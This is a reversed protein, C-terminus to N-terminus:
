KVTELIFNDNYLGIKFGRSTKEGRQCPTGNSLNGETLGKGLGIEVEEVIAEGVGFVENSEEM